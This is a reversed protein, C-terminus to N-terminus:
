TTSARKERVHIKFIEDLFEKISERYKDIYGIDPNKRKGRRRLRGRTKM